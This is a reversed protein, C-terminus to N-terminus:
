LVKWKGRIKTGILMGVSDMPIATGPVDHLDIDYPALYGKGGSIFGHGAFYVLVRDGPATVSPLWDELEHLVNARSAEAGKLLHVHNAPFQGGQQSILTTYISEADRDPYRLQASDPLNQYHGIGIVLAYRQAVTNSPVTGNNEPPHVPKLDRTNTGQDPPQQAPAPNQAGLLAAWSLCLLSLLSLIRSFRHQNSFSRTM